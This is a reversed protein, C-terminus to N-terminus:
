ANESLAHLSFFVDEANDCVALAVTKYKTWHKLKHVRKWLTNSHSFAVLNLARKMRSVCEEYKLGQTGVMEM